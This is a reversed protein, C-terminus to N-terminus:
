VSENNSSIKRELISRIMNEVNSRRRNLTSKSLIKLDEELMEKKQGNLFYRQIIPIRLLLRIALQNKTEEDLKIYYKGFESITVNARSNTKTVLALDMLAATKSHNEGYKKKAVSTNIKCNEDDKKLYGGLTQYDLIEDSLDGLIKPVKFVANTLSSYQPINDKKVPELNDSNSIQKIIDDVSYGLIIECLKKAAEESLITCESNKYRLCELDIQKTFYTQILKDPLNFITDWCQNKKKCESCLPKNAYRRGYGYQKKYLNEEEFKLDFYQKAIEKHEKEFDLMCQYAVCNENQNKKYAQNAECFERFSKKKFFQPQNCWRALQIYIERYESNKYAEYRMVYPLSGYKMLTHIREFVDAIDKYDQSKYGCIVYMKCIKSAYRKWLQVKDVILQKDEIHDFAFIFDGHYHSNVLKFAKKDTMLRLDLGQRFQYAKGTGELEDIVEEWEPLALINDDWLYIYPRKKDLFENVHSHRFPHDYKRNVCFACKRFCGRSTFGISYNLYDDFYNKKRGKKIEYEIYPKYLDYYPMHHEIPYELNEGGDEFFGTGGYKMNPLNKIEEPVKTFSFVCSMYLKDFSADKAEDFSKYILVVEDDRDKYYGAIKMLALNPHRTGHDILDADIIGIKAMIIDGM